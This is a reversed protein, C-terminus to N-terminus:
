RAGAFGAALSAAALEVRSRCGTRAFLRTLYNEVTKESMRLNAAIQRNTRGQRILDIIRLDVGSVAQRPARRRSGRVDRERMAATVASRLWPVGLDDAEARAAHLWPGPDSATRGLALTALALELRHGRARITDVAAAATGADGNSLARVLLESGGSIRRRSVEESALATLWADHEALRFRAALAAARVLLHEAGIRSGHARQRDYAARAARLRRAADAATTPEDAPGNAVWWRLAAYPPEEPVAQLWTMAEDSRGRLALAEAAWLHALRRVAVAEGAGLEVERAASLMGALDGAAYSRHLRHYAALPGDAPITYHQGGLVLRLVTGLDGATGAALLEDAPGDGARLGAGLARDATAFEGDGDGSAGPAVGTLWREALRSVAEQAPGGRGAPVPMRTGTHVAVLAAATALDASGGSSASARVVEALRAFQGTRILLRLLRTLIHDAAKGGGAHWLAARLWDAARGPESDTVEAATAALSAATRRDTPMVTGAHAVHDALATRDAAGARRLMAAAYARHLRAVAGPGADTTLRAGLAPNLPRIGGGPDAVLVGDAVLADVTRGYDDLRGLTADAFLPLDDLRVRTVAAMTAIRVAQPGRDYLARILRHGAPLAIPAGPDLLCLHGGAVTLRGARVLADATEAVTAPHGALPGLAAALVVPVAEDLPAGHRRSLMEGV